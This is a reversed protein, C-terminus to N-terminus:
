ARSGWRECLETSHEPVRSPALGPSLVWPLSGLGQAERCSGLNPEVEERHGPM